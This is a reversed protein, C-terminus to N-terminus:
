TKSGKKKRLVYEFVEQREKRTMDRITDMIEQYGHTGDFIKYWERTSTEALVRQEETSMDGWKKALQYFLPDPREMGLVDYIELGLKMALSEVYKPGPVIYGNMWKSALRQNVELYDAFERLSSREGRSNEWELFKQEFWKKFDKTGM